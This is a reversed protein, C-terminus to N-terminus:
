PAKQIIKKGKMKEESNKQSLAKTTWKRSAIEKIYIKQEFHEMPFQKTERSVWRWKSYKEKKKKKERKIKKQRPTFLVDGRICRKCRGFVGM